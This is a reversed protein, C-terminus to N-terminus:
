NRSLYALVTDAIMASVRFNSDQTVGAVHPTLILNPLGAFMQAADASLPEAEFVDLAAGAIQESRLAHALAAEDVVGGRAANILVASAKMQTLREANIIHRTDNTLPVHLSVIDSLALVEDFGMPDTGNWLPSDEPLFPDHACTTMGLARALKATARAIEGFGILGMKCGAVERGTCRSRPWEGALMEKKAQYANRTLIAANTVVYEAVSLTNAGIAPKVYIGRQACADLDINDLGVGLRGVMELDPAENLLEQNVRTRNRVILVKVSNLFNPINQQQDALDPAYMTPYADSMRAVAGEDMFETVLIM